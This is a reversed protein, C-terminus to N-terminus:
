IEGCIIKIKISNLKQEKDVGLSADFAHIVPLKKAHM